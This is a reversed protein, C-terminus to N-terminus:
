KFKGGYPIVRPALTSVHDPHATTEHIHALPAKTIPGLGHPLSPFAKSDFDIVPTISFDM